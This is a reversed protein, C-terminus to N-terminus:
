ARRGGIGWDLLPGNIPERTPLHNPHYSTTEKTIRVELNQQRRYIIARATNMSQTRYVIERDFYGTFVEHLNRRAM